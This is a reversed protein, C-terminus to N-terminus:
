PSLFSASKVIDSPVVIEILYSLDHNAKTIIRKVRKRTDKAKDFVIMFYFFTLGAIDLDFTPKGMCDFLFIMLETFYM